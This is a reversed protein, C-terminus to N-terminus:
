AASLCVFLCVSLFVSPILFGVWMTPTPLFCYSLRCENVWAKVNYWIICQMYYYGPNPPKQRWEGEVCRSWKLVMAGYVIATFSCSHLSVPASVVNRSSARRTCFVHVPGWRCVGSPIPMAGKIDIRLRWYGCYYYFNTGYTVATSESHWRWRAFTIAIAFANAFQVSVRGLEFGRSVFVVVSILFRSWVFTLYQETTESDTTM